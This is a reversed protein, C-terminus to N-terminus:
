FFVQHSVLVQRFVVFQYQIM